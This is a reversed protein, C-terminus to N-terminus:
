QMDGQRGTQRDAQRGAQRDTKRRTKPESVASINNVASVNVSCTDLSIKRTKFFKANEHSKHM